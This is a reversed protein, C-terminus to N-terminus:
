HNRMRLQGIRVAEVTLERQLPTVHLVACGPPLGSVLGPRFYLTRMSVAGHMHIRHATRAPIWLAFHPPIGWVRQGSCVEMVGSIAYVLQDSGHAHEPVLFGRQYEHALTAISIGRR